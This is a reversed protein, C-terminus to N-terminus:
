SVHVLPQLLDHDETDDPVGPVANKFLAIKSTREADAPSNHIVSLTSVVLCYLRGSCPQQSRGGMLLAKPEEKDKAWLRSLRWYHLCHKRKRFMGQLMSPNKALQTMAAAIYLGSSSCCAHMSGDRHGSVNRARCRKLSDARFATTNLLQLSDTINSYM